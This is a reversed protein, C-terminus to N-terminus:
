EAAAEKCLMRRKNARKPDSEVMAAVFGVLGGLNEPPLPAMLEVGREIKSCDKAKFEKAILTGILADIFPRLAEEPLTKMMEGIGAPGDGDESFATLVRLAAPWNEDQKERYTAIFEDGKTAMFGDQSLEPGCKQAFADAILPLAYVTAGALDEETFCAKAMAMQPQALACIALAGAAAKVMLNKM